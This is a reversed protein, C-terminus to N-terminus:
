AQRRMHEDAMREIDEVTTDPWYETLRHCIAQMLAQFRQEDMSGFSLSRPIKQIVDHGALRFAVEDCEAGTELQLRKLVRHADMGAFADINDAALRGIAHALRHFAPNRPRKIQAYVTDGLAYGSSRLASQTASDAPVLCGTDALRAVKFCLM